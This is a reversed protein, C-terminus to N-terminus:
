RYQSKIRHYEEEIIKVQEKVGEIDKRRAALEARFSANKMIVSKISLSYGKIIDSSNECGKYDKGEILEKFENLILCIKEISAKQDELNNNTEKINLYYLADHYLHRSEKSLANEICKNLEELTFPKSLYDDMGLTLFKERDGVLAYATLAIIPTHEGSIKETERIIETAEIGDMIPMQIDMLVADFSEGDLIELAKRGNDALKIRHNLMSCMRSIVIQNAENDEVILLKRSPNLINNKYNDKKIIVETSESANSKEVNITLSFTSGKGKISEAFIDGDMLEALKKSIILGLGTGGYKRTYTGDVQSFSKFLKDM